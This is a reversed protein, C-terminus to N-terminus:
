SRKQTERADEVADLFVDRGLSCALPSAVEVPLGNQAAYDYIYKVAEVAKYAMPLRVEIEKGVIGVLEICDSCTQTNHQETSKSENGVLANVIDQMETISKAAQVKKLAEKFLM